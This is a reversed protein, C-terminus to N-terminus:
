GIVVLDFNAIEPWHARAEPKPGSEMVDAAMVRFM